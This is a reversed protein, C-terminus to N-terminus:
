FYYVVCAEGISWIGSMAEKRIVSTIKLGRSEVVQKFPGQPMPINAGSEDPTVFGRRPCLEETPQKHLSFNLAFPVQLFFPNHIIVTTFYTVLVTFSGRVDDEVARKCALKPAGDSERDSIIQAGLVQWVDTARIAKRTCFEVGKDEEAAPLQPFASITDDETLIMGSKRGSQM